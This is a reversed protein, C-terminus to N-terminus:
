DRSGRRADFDTIQNQDVWWDWWTPIEYGFDMGNLKRLAGLVEPNSVYVTENKSKLAQQGAFSNNGTGTYQADNPNVRPIAIEHQTILANILAPTAARDNLQGIIYAARNVTLNDKDALYQVFNKSIGPLRRLAGLCTQTVTEDKERMTYQAIEYYAPGTGIRSLVGVVVERLKPNQENKLVDSLAPVAGPDTLAYLADEVEQSPNAKWQAILNQVIRSSDRLEQGAQVQREDIMKKQRTVWVGRSNKVYGQQLMVDDRTTWEGDIKAYQLAQRAASNESDMDLVQQYHLNGLSALNQSMCVEALKLHTEASEPLFPVKAYYQELASPPFAQRVVTTRHPLEVTVGEAMQIQWTKRPTEKPNLIKGEVTTGNTLELIDSAFVTHGTVGYYIFFLFFLIQAPRM